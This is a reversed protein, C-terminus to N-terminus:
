IGMRGYSNAPSVIADFRTEPPLSQLKARVFRFRARLPSPLMEDLARRWAIFLEEGTDPVILNFTIDM